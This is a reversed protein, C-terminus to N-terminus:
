RVRMSPWGLSRPSPAGTAPPFTRVLSTFNAGPAPSRVIWATSSPLGAEPPGLSSTFVPLTPCAASTATGAGTVRCWLVQLPACGVETM